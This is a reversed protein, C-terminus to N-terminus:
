YVQLITHTVIDFMKFYNGVLFHVNPLTGPPVFYLAREIKNFKMRGKWEIFLINMEMSMM